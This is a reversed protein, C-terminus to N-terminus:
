PSPMAASTGGFAQAGGLGGVSAAGPMGLGNDGPMLLSTAPAAGQMFMQQAQREYEQPNYVKAKDFYVTKRSAGPTMNLRFFSRQVVPDYGLTLKMDDPGVSVFFYNATVLRDQANDRNPALNTAIGASFLRHLKVSNMTIANARGRYYSDFVFPSEGMTAALNLSNFSRFRDWFNFLMNPGGQVLGVMDGTSYGAVSGIASWGFQALVNEESGLSFLPRSNSIRAQLMARGAILPDSKPNRIAVFFNQHNTPFYDDKAAGISAFTDIKLNFKESELITRSDYLQAMYRPREWTVLNNRFDENATLLLNFKGTGFKHRAYVVPDRVQDNYGINIRNKDDVYHFLGGYGAGKVQLLQQGNRVRRTGVGYSILPSVRAYGKGLKFDWGPGYYFGGYDPDYGIDPGLYETLNVEGNHGFDAQPLRAFPIGKFRYTPRSLNVDETGDDNQKIAVEKAHLKFISDNEKDTDWRMDLEQPVLANKYINPSNAAKETATERPAKPSAKEAKQKAAKDAAKKARKSNTLPTNALAIADDYHNATAVSSTNVKPAMDAVAPMVLKGRQLEIYKNAMFGRAAKIRITGVPALPDRILASKRTLDVKAFTGYTKQGNQIILVNGTALLVGSKQDYTVKDARLETNQESVVIRVHGTMTYNDHTSNYDLVDSAMDIVMAKAELPKQAEPAPATLDPLEITPSLADTDDAVSSGSIAQYSPTAPAAQSLAPMAALMLLASLVVASSTQVRGLLCAVLWPSSVVSPTPTM